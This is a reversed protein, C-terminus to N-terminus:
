NEPLAHPEIPRAGLALLNANDASELTYLPAGWARVTAALQATKGGPAAHAIFVTDALAAVFLNRRWALDATVRRQGGSFPSLLALRGADLADQWRAPVRMGEVARAPCIALPATGRLLLDLCEQEMPTHFGGLLTPPRDRLTRMLEYSRLILNGPCAASCFLALTPRQLVDLNGRATIAQPAQEALHTALAAPYRPDNRDILLPAPEASRRPM